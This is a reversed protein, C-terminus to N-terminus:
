STGGPIAADSYTPRGRHTEVAMGIGNEKGLAIIREFIRVNEEFAFIDRGAHLNILIPNCRLAFEVQEEMSRLHDAVSAGQTLIQGVLDMGYERHLAAIEEPSERVSQLYLETARFDDASARRLFAEVSDDWMEWKSKCFLVRM